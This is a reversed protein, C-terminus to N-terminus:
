RNCNLCGAAQGGSHGQRKEKPVCPEGFFTRCSGFVFDYQSRIGGCGYWDLNSACFVGHRNLCARTKSINDPQPMPPRALLAGLPTAPGVEVPLISPLTPAQASSRGVVAGLAIMFSLGLRLSTM